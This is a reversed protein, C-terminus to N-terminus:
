LYALICDGIFSGSRFGGNAMPGNELTWTTGFETCPWGSSSEIILCISGQREDRSSKWGSTFHLTNKRLCKRTRRSASFIKPLPSELLLFVRVFKLLLSNLISIEIFSLVTSAPINRVMNETCRRSNRLAQFSQLFEDVTSSLRM